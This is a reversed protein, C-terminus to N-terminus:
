EVDGKHRKLKLKGQLTMIVVQNAYSELAQFAFVAAIMANEFYSYLHPINEKTAWKEPNVAGEL